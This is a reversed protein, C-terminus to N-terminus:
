HHDALTFELLSGAAIVPLRPKDEYFYRLAQLAYPTTRIEDLFLPSGPKKINAGINADLEKIIGDVDLTKFIENLYLYRKLNIEGLNLGNKSAFQSILMSKGGQKAGCLVLPTRQKRKLWKSLHGEATRDMM